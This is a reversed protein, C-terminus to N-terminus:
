DCSYRCRKFSPDRPCTLNNLYQPGGKNLGLYSGTNKTCLPLAKELPWGAEQVLLKITNLIVNPRGYEYRILVGKDDFKPLSGYADSSITIQSLPLGEKDLEILTKFCTSKNTKGCTFDIYGGSKLWNKGEEILGAGRGSVHTPYMQTIPIPTKSVIDWLLSLKAEGGGVHFHTKGCKGSLMGAVRADGVLRALEDFTPCSSRHDSIAIEGLGIIKDILM